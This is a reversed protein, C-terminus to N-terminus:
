RRPSARNLLLAVDISPSNRMAAAPALGLFRGSQRIRGMTQNGRSGQDQNQFPFLASQRASAVSRWLFHNRKRRMRAGRSALSSASSNSLPPFRNRKTIRPRGNRRQKQIAAKAFIIPKMERRGLWSRSTSPPRERKANSAYCISSGSVGCILRERSVPACCSVV